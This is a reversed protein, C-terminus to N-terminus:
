NTAITETDVLLGQSEVVKMKKFRGKKQQDFRLFKLEFFGVQILFNNFNYNFTKNTILKKTNASYSSVRLRSLLGTIIGDLKRAVEYNVLELFIM